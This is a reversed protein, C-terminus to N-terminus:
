DLPPEKAEDYALRRAHTEEDDADGCSILARYEDAWAEVEEVAPQEKFGYSRWDPEPERSRAYGGYAQGHEWNKMAHGYSKRPNDLRWQRDRERRREAAERYERDRQREEDQRQREREAAREIEAAKEAKTAALAISPDDPWRRVLDFKGKPDDLNQRVEIVTLLPNQGNARLNRCVAEAEEWLDYRPSQMEIAADGNETFFYRGGRFRAAGLGVGGKKYREVIYFESPGFGSPRRESGQAQM